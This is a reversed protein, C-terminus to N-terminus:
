SRRYVVACKWKRGLKLKVNSSRVCDDSSYSLMKQSRIKSAKNEEVVSRQSRKLEASRRYLAVSTLGPPLGLWKRTYSEIKQKIKEVACMEIKYVM